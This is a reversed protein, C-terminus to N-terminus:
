KLNILEKRADVLADILADVDSLTNEDCFSVRVASDIVADPLQEATLTHSREGRSCASGSSVYIGRSSLYRLLPESRLGIMSLNVIYDSGNQPSNIRINGLEGVRDLLHKKLPAPDFKISSARRIAAEFGACYAINETGPRLGKEQAGGFVVNEINFGSRIYVAGMGKPGHIKHASVSCTDIATGGLALKHKLFGQVNDCHFATRRNIKKVAEALAPTDIVAGTENNVRMACALATKPGVAALFEDVDINGDQRPRIFHVKFGERELQKMSNAVSPHEYGTCVIENAWGKRARASGLVAINNAETGGSTFYIESQKCGLAAATAERCSDVVRQSEFGIDYLSGANAFHERLASNVADACEDCVSTTAANDLYIM